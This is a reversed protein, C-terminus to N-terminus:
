PCSRRATADVGDHGLGAHRLELAFLM